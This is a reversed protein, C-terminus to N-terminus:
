ERTNRERHQRLAETFNAWSDKMFDITGLLALIAVVFSAVNLIMQMILTGHKSRQEPGAIYLIWWEFYREIRVHTSVIATLFEIFVLKIECYALLYGSV